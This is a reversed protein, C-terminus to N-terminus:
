GHKRYFEQLVSFALKKDGTESVLGKRNWGDQIEPLMRVPTRFDKLIWPSLGRWSPVRELMALQQRYVRAQHDETWIELDGGRRGAKAGAGTESVVLPKGCPVVVEFEPMGDLIARRFDAQAIGAAPALWASYYWGIYENWGVVDLAGAIPDDLVIKPPPPSEGRLVGEVYGRLAAMLAGIGGFLASTILRTPDLARVHGVLEALFANRAESPHTENSISWLAVCARNRDREVIESLQQKANALTDPDEWDIGWYLPIESWVMLGMRDATRVIDEDHPYHALRVFNCGLERALELTARADDPGHARGPHLLSEEHASVGRLFVPAGNLLIDAGRCELSRFGIEDAVRDTEARIEVRYLRPDDPSWPEPAAALEFRAFGSADTEVPHEVGLEPIEVTVTQRSRVGDLQVWGAIRDRAGPALQVFYRAVFTAPLTLARVARTLGGYHKWDTLRTPVDRPGLTCDVKVVLDNEGDRAAHTAEFAFPTFGGRHSGLEVGNLWVKARYHAAGFHLVVRTDARRELEFGRQYWVVGEYLFLQERQSNWDGPVQLTDSTAFAYEILESPSQPTRNEGFRMGEGRDYPDVIARWPGALDLAERASVNTLSLPQPLGPDAM